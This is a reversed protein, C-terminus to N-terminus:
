YKLFYKFNKQKGEDIITNLSITPKSNKYQKELICLFTTFSNYYFYKKEGGLILEHTGSKSINTPTPTVCAENLNESHCKMGSHCQAVCKIGKFKM